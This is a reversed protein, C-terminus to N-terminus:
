VALWDAELRSCDMFRLAPKAALEPPSRQNPARKRLPRLPASARAAGQQVRWKVLM